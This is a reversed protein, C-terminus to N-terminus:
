QSAAAAARLREILAVVEQLRSLVEAESSRIAEASSNDRVAAEYATVAVGFIKLIRRTDDAPM